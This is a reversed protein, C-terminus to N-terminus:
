LDVLASGHLGRPSPISGPPPAAKLGTLQPWQRPSADPDRSPSSPTDLLGLVSAQPHGTQCGTPCSPDSPGSNHRRPCCPGGSRLSAARKRLAGADLGSCNHQGPDASGARATASWGPPRALPQHTGWIPGDPCPSGQTIACVTGPSGLSRPSLPSSMEPSLCGHPGPGRSPRPRPQQGRSPGLASGRPRAGLLAPPPQPPEPSPHPPGQQRLHARPVPGSVADRKHCCWPRHGPGQAAATPSRNGQLSATDAVQDQSRRSGRARQPPRDLGWM